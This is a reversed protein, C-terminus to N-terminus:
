NAYHGQSENMWTIQEKKTSFLRANYVPVVTEWGSVVHLFNLGISVALHKGSCVTQVGEM